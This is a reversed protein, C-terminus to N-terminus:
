ASLFPSTQLLPTLTPYLHSTARSMSAARGTSLAAQCESCPATCQANDPAPPVHPILVLRVRCVNDRSIRGFDLGEAVLSAHGHHQDQTWPCTVRSCTGAGRRSTGPRQTTASGQQPKDEGGTFHLHRGGERLGPWDRIFRPRHRSRPATCSLNITPM